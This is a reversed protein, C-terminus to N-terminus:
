HSSEKGLWELYAPSGKEIPWSIIEPIEYSHNQLIYDEVKKYNNKDTKIIAGYESAKEIKGQWAYISSITFINGCAAIKNTVLGSIIKEASAQDPFTTYIVIFDGSNDM